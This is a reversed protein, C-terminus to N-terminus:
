ICFFSGGRHTVAHNLDGICTLMNDADYSVAWKSHDTTELMDTSLITLDVINVMKPTTDCTSPILPRGWTEIYFGVDKNLVNSWWPSLIEEFVEKLLYIPKTLLTFEGMKQVIVKTDQMVRQNENLYKLSSNLKPLQTVTLDNLIKLIQKQKREFVGQEGGRNEKDTKNRYQNLEKEDFLRDFSNYYFYPRSQM